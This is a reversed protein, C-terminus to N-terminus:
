SARERQPESAGAAPSSCLHWSNPPLAPMSCPLVHSSPPGPICPSSTNPTKRTREIFKSSFWARQPAGKPTGVGERVATERRIKMETGVGKGGGGRWKGGGGKQSPSGALSSLFLYVRWFIKFKGFKELHWSPALASCPISPFQGVERRGGVPLLM